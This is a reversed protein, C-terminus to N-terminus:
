TELEVGTVKVVGDTGGYLEPKEAVLMRVAVIEGEVEALVM